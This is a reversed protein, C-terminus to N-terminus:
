SPVWVDISTALEEGERQYVKRIDLVVVQADDRWVIGTLADLVARVLKDIDPMTTMQAPASPLLGRKGFHGRPRPFRFTIAVAVPRHEYAPNALGAAEVIQAAESTVAAKWPRTRPNDSTAWAHGNRTFARLSGQPVPVGPVVITLGPLSPAAPETLWAVQEALAATIVTEVV